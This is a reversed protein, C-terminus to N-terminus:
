LVTEPILVFKYGNVKTKRFTLHIHHVAQLLYAQKIQIDMKPQYPYVSRQLVSRIRHYMSLLGIHHNHKLVVRVAITVIAITVIAITVIAITVIAITVIAITVIAITVIAIVVHRSLESRM